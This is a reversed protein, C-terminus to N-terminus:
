IKGKWRVIIKRCHYILSNIYIFDWFIGKFLIILYHKTEYRVAVKSTFEQISISSNSSFCLIPINSANRFHNHDSHFLHSMSAFIPPFYSSIHFIIWSIVYCEMLISLTRQYSNKCTRINICTFIYMEYVCEWINFQGVYM